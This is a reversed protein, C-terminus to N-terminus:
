GESRAQAAARVASAARLLGAGFSTDKGDEGLDQCSAEM